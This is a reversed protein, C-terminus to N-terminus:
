TFRNEPSQNMLFKNKMRTCVMKAESIKKNMFLSNNTRVHKSKNPACKDLARIFVGLFIQLAPIENCVQIKAFENFNFLFIM